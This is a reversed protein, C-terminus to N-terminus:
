QTGHSDAACPNGVVAIGFDAYPSSSLTRPTNVAAEHLIDGISKIDGPPYYIRGAIFLPAFLPDIQHNV